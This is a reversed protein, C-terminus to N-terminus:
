LAIVFLTALRGHNICLCSVLSFCAVLICTLVLLFPFSVICPVLAKLLWGFRHPSGDQRSCKVFLLDVVLSCMNELRM